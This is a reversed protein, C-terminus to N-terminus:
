GWPFVTSRHLFHQLSVSLPLAHSYLRTTLSVTLFCLESAQKWSQEQIKDTKDLICVRDQSCFASSLDKETSRLWKVM